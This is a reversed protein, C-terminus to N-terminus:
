KYIIVGDQIISWKNYIIIIIILVYQVSRETEKTNDAM